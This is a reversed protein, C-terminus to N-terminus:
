LKSGPAAKLQGPATVALVRKGKPRSAYRIKFDPAVNSLTAIYHALLYLMFRTAQNVRISKTITM